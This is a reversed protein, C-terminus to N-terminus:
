GLDVDRSGIPTECAWSAFPGGRCPELRFRLVPRLSALSGALLTEHSVVAVMRGHTALIPAALRVTQSLRASRGGMSYVRVLTHQAARESVALEGGLWDIGRIQGRLVLEDRRGITMAATETGVALDAGRPAYALHVAPRAAAWRIVRHSEHGLDYVIPRGGSGVYALALSDARWSPTIGQASRDVVTDHTGNGWIVHLALKRTDTRVVYAVRLGDPAWAVSAVTGCVRDSRPCSGGIAHSWAHRGNPAVAVLSRGIGAAIYLGHPSMTAATVPLGQLGFGGKTTASLRGYVIASIGDAGKPLLLESTAPVQKENEGFSVHLAGAAGLSGAAVVLLVLAGALVLVAARLGRRAAAVPQLARLARHLAEEGAGPDPEPATAFMEELRQELDSSM